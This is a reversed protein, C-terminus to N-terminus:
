DPRYIGTAPDRRLTRIREDRASEHVKAFRAEELEYNIRQAERLALRVLVAGGLAGLAVVILPPM